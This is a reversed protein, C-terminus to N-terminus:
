AGDLDLRTIGPRLDCQCASQDRLPPWQICFARKSERALIALKWREIILQGARQDRSSKILFSRFSESLREAYLIALDFGPKTAMLNRVAYIEHIQQRRLSELFAELHTPSGSVHHLISLQSKYDVGLAPLLPWAAETAVPAVLRSTQPPALDCFRLVDDRGFGPMPVANVKVPRVEPFAAIADLGAMVRDLADRRTIEFFRGRALSDISVNV